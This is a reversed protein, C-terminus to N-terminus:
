TVTSSLFENDSSDLLSIRVQAPAESTNVLAIGENRGQALDVSAAATFLSGVRSPAVALSLLGPLFYTANSLVGENSSISAYASALTGQTNTSIFTTRSPQVSFPVVANAAIMNLPRGDSGFFSVTGIVTKTTSPNTLAVGTSFGGGG